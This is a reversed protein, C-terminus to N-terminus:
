YHTQNGILYRQYMDDTTGDPSVDYNYDKLFALVEDIKPYEAELEAISAKHKAIDKQILEQLFTHEPAKGRLRKLVRERKRIAASTEAINAQIDRRVGKLAIRVMEPIDQRSPDNCGNVASMFLGEVRTLMEAKSNDPGAKGTLFEYAAKIRQFRETSGGPKDPHYAQAMSRYLEKLFEPTYNGPKIGLEKYAEEHTM